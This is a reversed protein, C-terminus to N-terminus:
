YEKKHKSFYLSCGCLFIFQYGSLFSCLLTYTEGAKLSSQYWCEPLPGCTVTRLDESWCKMSATVKLFSHLHIQVLLSHNGEEETGGVRQVCVCLCMCMWMNINLYHYFFFFFFSLIGIQESIYFPHTWLLCESFTSVTSLSCWVYDMIKFGFFSIVRKEWNRCTNSYFYM